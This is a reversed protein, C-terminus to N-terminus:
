AAKEHKWSSTFIVTSSLLRRQNFYKKDGLIYLLITQQFDVSSESSCAGSNEPFFFLVGFLVGAHLVSKTLESRPSALHEESVNICDYM